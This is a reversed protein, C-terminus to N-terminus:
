RSHTKANAPCNGNQYLVTDIRTNPYDTGNETSTQIVQFYIGAITDGECIVTDPIGFIDLVEITQEQGACALALFLFILTLINKM